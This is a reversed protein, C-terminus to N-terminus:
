NQSAPPSIEDQLVSILHKVRCNVNTTELIDQKLYLDAHATFSVFHSLVVPDDLDKPLAIDEAPTESALRLKQIFLARLTQALRKLEKLNLVRDPIKRIRAVRYPEMQVYRLIRVRELGKLLVHSTGDPNEIVAKVYGVGGIEHSPYPEKKTEWGKRLLSVAIFKHGQLTDALMQRYRPEFIYLPLEVKPFLIVNPLPFVPVELPLKFKKTVSKKKPM